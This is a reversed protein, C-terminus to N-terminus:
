GSGSHAAALSEDDSQGPQEILMSQQPPFLFPSTQCRGRRLPPPLTAGLRGDFESQVAITDGLDRTEQDRTTVCDELPRTGTM